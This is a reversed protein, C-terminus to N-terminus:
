LFAALEAMQFVAKTVDLGERYPDSARVWEHEFLAKRDFANFASKSM